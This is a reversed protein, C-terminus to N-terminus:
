YSFQDTCCKYLVKIFSITCDIINDSGSRGTRYGHKLRACPSLWRFYHLFFYLNVYDCLALGLITLLGPLTEECLVQAYIIRTGHSVALRYTSNWCKNFKTQPAMDISIPIGRDSSDTQPNPKFSQTWKLELSVTM